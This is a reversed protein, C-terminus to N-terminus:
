NILSIFSNVDICRLIDIICRSLYKGRQSRDMNCRLRHAMLNDISLHTKIYKYCLKIYYNAQAQMIKAPDKTLTGDNLYVSNMSRNIGRSKERSYFFQTNREGEGYWRCKSRFIIGRTKESMLLEIEGKVTDYNSLVEDM